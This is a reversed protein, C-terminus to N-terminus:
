LENRAIVKEELSASSALALQLRASGASCVSRNTDGSVSFATQRLDHSGGVVGGDQMEGILLEPLNLREFQASGIGIADGHFGVAAEQTM